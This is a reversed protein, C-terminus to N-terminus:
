DGSFITTVFLTRLHLVAVCYTFCLGKCSRNIRTLQFEPWLPPCVCVIMNLNGSLLRNELICGDPIDIRQGENAVVPLLVRHNLESDGGCLNSCVSSLEGSLSTGALTCMELSPLITSSLSRQSRRSGNRSNSSRRLTIVSSSSLFLRSCGARTSFSSVTAYRTSIVRSSCSIPAPSSPFSAPDPFMSVTDMGSTNSPLM